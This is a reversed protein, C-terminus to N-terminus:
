LPQLPSVVFLLRQMQNLLHFCPVPLAGVVFLLDLFSSLPHYSAISILLHGEVGLSKPPLHRPLDLGAVGTSITPHSFISNQQTNILGEYPTYISYMLAYLNPTCSLNYM